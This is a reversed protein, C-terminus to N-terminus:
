LFQGALPKGLCWALSANGRVEAPLSLMFVQREGVAMFWWSQGASMLHAVSGHVSVEQKSHKLLHAKRETSGGPKQESTPNTGPQPSMHSISGVADSAAPPLPM